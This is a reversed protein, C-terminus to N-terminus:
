RQVENICRAFHWLTAGLTGGALAALAALILTLM